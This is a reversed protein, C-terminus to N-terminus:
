AEGDAILTRQALWARSSLSGGIEWARGRDWTGVLRLLGADLGERNESALAAIGLRIQVVPDNSGISQTDSEQIGL